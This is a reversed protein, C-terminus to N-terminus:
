NPKPDLKRNKAEKALAESLNIPKDMFLVGGRAECPIFIHYAKNKSDIIVRPPAGDFPRLGDGWLITEIQKAHNNFISQKNTPFDKLEPNMRFSFTRIAITRGTGEDIVPVGDFKLTSAYEYKTDDGVDVGTGPKLNELGEVNIDNRLTKM